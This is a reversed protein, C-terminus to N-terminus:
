AAQHPLPFACYADSLDSVSSATRHGGLVPLNSGDARLYPQLNRPNIPTALQSDPDWARIMDYSLGGLSGDTLMAPAPGMSPSPSLNSPQLALGFDSRTITSQSTFDPVTCAGPKHDRGLASWDRGDPQQVISPKHLSSFCLLPHTNVFDPDLLEVLQNQSSSLNEELLWAFGEPEPEPELDPKIRLTQTPKSTQLRTSPSVSPSYQSATSSDFTM